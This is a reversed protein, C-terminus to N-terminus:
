HVRQSLRPRSRYSDLPHVADSLRTRGSARCGAGAAAAPAASAADRYDGGPELRAIGSFSRRRQRKRMGRVRRGHAEIKVAVRRDEHDAGADHTRADRLDRRLGAMRHVQEVGAFARRACRAGLERRREVAQDGLAPELGAGGLAVISRMTAAVDSSSAAPAPRTTSAITSFTSAM